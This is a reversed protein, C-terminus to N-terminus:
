VRQDNLTKFFDTLRAIVWKPDDLPLDHGASPHLHLDVRYKQAIKLSCSYNVMRDKKAAMVLIPCSVSQPSQIRGSMQLQRFINKKRLPYETNLEVWKKVIQLSELRNAEISKRIQYNNSTLNLIRTERKKVSRSFLAQLIIAAASIKLRNPLGSLDSFSSNIVSVGCFDEPNNRIWELAIMGGMSLGVLCCRGLLRLNKKEKNLHAMVLPMSEPFDIDSCVGFGPLDLPFVGTIGPQAALQVSFDGWHGSQRSLGRLLIVNM